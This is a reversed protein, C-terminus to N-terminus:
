RTENGRSAQSNQPVPGVWPTGDWIKVTGDKSSSAIRTGDPSFAVCLVPDAHGRLTLAEQGTVPDWVKVTGDDGSSAARKGDPSFAVSWVITKHGLFRTVERGTATDWVIV